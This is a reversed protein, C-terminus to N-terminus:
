IIHIFFSFDQRFNSRVLFKKQCSALLTSICWFFCFQLLFIQNIWLNYLFYTLKFHFNLELVSSIVFLGTGLWTSTEALLKWWCILCFLISLFNRTCNGHTFLSFAIEQQFNSRLKIKKRQCLSFAHLYLLLLFITLFIQKPWIISSICWNLIFILLM